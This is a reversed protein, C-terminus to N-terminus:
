YNLMSVIGARRLNTLSASADGTYSVGLVDEVNILQKIRAVHKGRRQKKTTTKGDCAM